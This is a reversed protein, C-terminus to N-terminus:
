KNALRFWVHVRLRSKTRHKNSHFVSLSIVISADKSLFVLSLYDDLMTIFILFISSFSVMFDGRGDWQHNGLSRKCRIRSGVTRARELCFWLRFRGHSPIRCMTATACQCRAIASVISANRALSDLSLYNELMTIGIFFFQECFMGFPTKEQTGLTSESEHDADSERVEKEVTFAVKSGFAQQRPGLLHELDCM